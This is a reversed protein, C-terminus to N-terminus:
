FTSFDFLWDDHLIHALKLDRTESFAVGVSSLWSIIGGRHSRLFYALILLRLFALAVQVLDLLWYVLWSWIFWALLSFWSILLKAMVDYCALSARNFLQFLLIRYLRRANLAVLSAALNVQFSSLTPNASYSLVTVILLCYVYSYLIWVFSCIRITKAGRVISIDTRVAVIFNLFSLLGDVLWTVQSESGLGMCLEVAWIVLVPVVVRQCSLLPLEIWKARCDTFVRPAM